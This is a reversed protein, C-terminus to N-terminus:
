YRIKALSSVADPIVCAALKVDIVKLTVVAEGVPVIVPNVNLIPFVRAVEIVVEYRVGPVKGM